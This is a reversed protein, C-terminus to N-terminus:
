GYFLVSEKGWRQAFSTAANKLGIRSDRCKKAELLIQGLLSSLRMSGHNDRHGVLTDLWPTWDGFGPISDPDNRFHSIAEILADIDSFVVQGWLDAGLAATQRDCRNIMLSRKGALFAEFSATGGCTDGICFDASAAAVGPYTDRCRKESHFLYCRGTDMASKLLPEIAALNTSILEPNKPKCILGVTKNSLVFHFLRKYVEVVERPNGFTWKDMFNEDFFCIIFEAGNSKLRNRLDAISQAASEIAQNISYSYGTVAYLLGWNSRRYLESFHSSLTCVVHCPAHFSPSFDFNSISDQFMIAVGGMSDIAIVKSVDHFFFSTIIKTNHHTYFDKWYAYSQILLFFASVIDCRVREGRLLTYWLDVAIKGVLSFAILPYSTTPRWKDVQDNTGYFRVGQEKRVEIAGYESCDLNYEALIVDGPNVEGTDLWFLENKKEPSTSVISGTYHQVITSNTNTKCRKKSLIAGIFLQWVLGSIMVMCQRALFLLRLFPIYKISTLDRYQYYKAGREVAIRELFASNGTVKSLVVTKDAVHLKAASWASLIIFMIPSRVNNNLTTYFYGRILTPDGIKDSLRKFLQHCALTEDYLGSILDEIYERMDLFHVCNHDRMEAYYFPNKLVRMYIFPSKNLISCAWAAVTTVGDFYYVTDVNGKFRLIYLLSFITLKDVFVTV